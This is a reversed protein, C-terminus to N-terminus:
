IKMKLLDLIDNFVNLGDLLLLNNPCNKSIWWKTRRVPAYLDGYVDDFIKQELEIELQKRTDAEDFKLDSMFELNNIMKSKTM